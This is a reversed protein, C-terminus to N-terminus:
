ASSQDGNEWTVWIPEVNDPIMTYALGIPIDRIKCLATALAIGHSVVLVPDSPSGSAIDNLASQVRKAVESVTEGGPPRVNAPDQKRKEWIDAYRSKITDVNQGEWEGQHIERLRADIFVPLALEKAIILATDRARLLDSTYIADFSEGALKEALRHAQVRGNDNLSIDSQGQYRGELNWDTEGHRILCLQTM